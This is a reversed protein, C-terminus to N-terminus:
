SNNQGESTSQTNKQLLAAEKRLRQKELIKEKRMKIDLCQKYIDHPTVKGETFDSIKIAITLSPICGERILRFIQKHNFGMKRALHTPLVCFRELYETLYM